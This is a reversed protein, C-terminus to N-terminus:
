ISWWASCYGQIVAVGGEGIEEEKLLFHLPVPQSIFIFLDIFLCRVKIFATAEFRCDLWKEACLAYDM